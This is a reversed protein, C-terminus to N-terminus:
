VIQLSPICGNKERYYHMYKLAIEESEVGGERGDREETDIPRRLEDFLNSTLIEYVACREKPNFSLLSYFIHISAPGLSFLRERVRNM